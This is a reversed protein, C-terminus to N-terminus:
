YDILYNLTIFTVIYTCFSPGTTCSPYPKLIHVQLQDIIVVRKLSQGNLLQTKLKQKNNEFDHCERFMHELCLVNM